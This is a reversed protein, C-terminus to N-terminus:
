TFCRWVIRGRIKNTPSLTNMPIEVTVKDGIMILVRYHDMKSATAVCNMGNELKINYLGHANHEVTGDIYVCGEKKKEEPFEKRKSSLLNVKKSNHKGRVKERM